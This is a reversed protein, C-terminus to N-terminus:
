INKRIYYQGDLRNIYGKLECMTLLTALSGADLEMMVAVDNFHRQTGLIDLLKEEDPSYNTQVSEFKPVFLNGQSSPVHVEGFELMPNPFDELIDGIETVMKAGWSKMMHHTGKSLPSFISGPVAYVNKGQALAYDVTIKTGSKLMAEVVIIGNSMGSIIRNRVPFNKALPQMGMPFDTIVCGSEAVEEFLAKNERPYVVDIGCGLVGITKGGGALSGRHGCSDIGRALGSISWFGAQALERGFFEAVEKGYATARRAGIIGIALDSEKPLTGKYYLMYPADNIYRLLHPYDDDEETVIKAGTDLFQEYLADLDTARHALMINDYEDASLRIAERWMSPMEWAVQADGFYEVLGRIRASGIEMISHLGLLYAISM